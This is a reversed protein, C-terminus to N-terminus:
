AGRPAPSAESPTAQQLCVRLLDANLRDEGAAAEALNRGADALRQREATDEWLQRIARAMSEADSPPVLRVVGDFVDRTAVSDTVVVAKRMALAILVMSTGSIRITPLLPVVVVRARRLAALFERHSGDSEILRVNAPLSAPDLPSGHQALGEYGDIMLEGPYPLRAMAALFTPFDRLSRGSTLVISGDASLEDAPPVEDWGNVKFSVFTSRGPHIGYWHAYGGLDRFHHVFHDVGGLAWRRLAVVIRQSFSPPERLLPDVAIIRARLLGVRRALGLLLLTRVAHNILIVDGRHTERLLRRVVGPADLDLPQVRVTEPIGDVGRELTADLRSVNTWIRM